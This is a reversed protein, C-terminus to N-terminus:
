PTTEDKVIKYKVSTPNKIKHEIWRDIKIRKKKGTNIEEITIEDLDAAGLQISIKELLFITKHQLTIRENIKWYWCNVERFLFFLIILIVLVVILVIIGEEM